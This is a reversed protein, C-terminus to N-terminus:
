RILQTIEGLGPIQVKNIHKLTFLVKKHHSEPKLFNPTHHHHPSHPPYPISTTTRAKINTKLPIRSNKLPNPQPYLSPELLQRKLTRIQQLTRVKAFVKFALSASRTQITTHKNVQVTLQPLISTSPYLLSCIFCPSVIHLEHAPYMLMSHLFQASIKSSTLSDM